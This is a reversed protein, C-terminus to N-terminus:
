FDKVKVGQLWVFAITPLQLREFIRGLAQVSLRLVRLAPRWVPLGM